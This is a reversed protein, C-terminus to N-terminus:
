RREGGPQLARRLFLLPVGDRWLHDVRAEEEFGGRALAQRMSQFWRDAPLEALAYRAGERTLQDLTCKLLLARPDEGPPVDSATASELLHVKSGGITGAIGGFLATGALQGDAEATLGRCEPDDGRAALELIELLRGAHPSGGFRGALLARAAGVDAAVLPRVIVGGRGGEARRPM